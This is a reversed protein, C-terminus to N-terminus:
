RELASKIGRWTDKGKEEEILQTYEKAAQINKQGLCEQIKNQLDKLREGKHDKLIVRLNWLAQNQEAQM